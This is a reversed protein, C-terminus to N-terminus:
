DFNIQKRGFIIIESRDMRMCFNYVSFLGLDRRKKIIEKKIDNQSPSRPIFLTWLCFRLYSNEQTKIEAVFFCYLSFFWILIKM